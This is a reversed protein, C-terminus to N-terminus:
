YNGTGKQEVPAMEVPNWVDIFTKSTYAHLTALMKPSAGRENLIKVSASFARASLNITTYLFKRPFQQFKPARLHWKTCKGPSTKIKLFTRHKRRKEATGEATIIHDQLVM